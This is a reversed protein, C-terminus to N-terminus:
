ASIEYFAHVASKIPLVQFRGFGAEQVALRARTEGWCAGLGPGGQALSTPVCHLCSIGYLMRAFPNAANDHLREAVKPEVMLYTGGPALAERIRRLVGAPDGMDHLCDFTSIFDYGAPPRELEAASGRVFAVRDAVGAQQAQERAIEISRADLDLGAIRAAPFAKALLVPIVGTGCGIDLAQGGGELRQVVQPMAPMWQRILRAEYVSRNMQEIALPEGEGYAQFPIGQGTEFAEAVKPAMAALGPAGKFLGGLYYESAPDAFFVAHEDPLRWTDADADHELYGACFMTALWEELYRPHIGSRQELQERTMPGAGFLGVRDGVYALSVSTATALDGVIKMMFAQSRAKDM